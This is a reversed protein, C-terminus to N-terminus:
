RRLPRPRRREVFWRDWAKPDYHRGQGGAGDSAARRQHALDRRDLVVAHKRKEEAAAAKLYALASKAVLSHDRLYAGSGHHDILLKILHQHDRHIRSAHPFVHEMPIHSRNYRNPSLPALVPDARRVAMLFRQGTRANGRRGSSATTPGCKSTHTADRCRRSAAMPGTPEHDAYSSLWDLVEVWFGRDDPRSVAAVHLQDIGARLRKRQADAPLHFCLRWSSRKACVLRESALKCLRWIAAQHHSDRADCLAVLLTTDILIM